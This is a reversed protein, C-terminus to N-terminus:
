ISNEKLRVCFLLECSSLCVTAPSHKRNEMKTIFSSFSTASLAHLGQGHTHTHLVKTIVNKLQLQLQFLFRFQFLFQFQLWFKFNM